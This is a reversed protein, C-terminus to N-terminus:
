VYGKSKTKNQDRLLWPRSRSGFLCNRCGGGGPNQEFGLPCGAENGGFGDDGLARDQVGVCGGFKVVVM